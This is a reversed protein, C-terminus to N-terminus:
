ILQHLQVRLALYQQKKAKTEEKTFRNNEQSLSTEPLLLNFGPSNKGKRNKAGNGEIKKQVKNM